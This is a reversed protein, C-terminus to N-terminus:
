RLLPRVRSLLAGYGALTDDVAKVVQPPIPGNGQQTLRYVALLQGRVGALTPQSGAAGRGRGRARGTGALAALERARDANGAGQARQEAEALKQSTAQVDAIADYVRMALAFQQRALLLGSKVRPDMRVSLAQTFTRGNATLRVTYTGPVVWPGKPEPATNFPTASIPYQPDVGPPMPYHLDWVFRHLGPEASLVATPRIWYWPVNGTDTIEPATDTSAYRRITKGAADLVELTVTGQISQPLYYDIIAGDPPNQGAPEDPPLPTDTWKSWEFRIAQAPKFVYTDAPSFGRGANGVEAVQRIPTVDDLIWFGRGHTGAILDDDKVTIDRISTAPMNLRLSQWHDGDDLSVYVETESGAYLLGKRKPDEKVSNIVAGDPIGTVIKTWSKGGDHTRYIEPHLQDLRLTNIAAYAGQPDTHSADMMSVKAWPTLQPPTVDKWTKGGDTTTQILGDDTGIWIRGVDLYGPAITYIVGKQSPRAAPTDTFIGVNAPVAWTKRTLDPSIETWGQLGGSTTKWLTNSAFYLVHPDVPSFVIPQTRVTRYEGSQGGALPRPAVDLVDGTRRDYRTVKGGYVIDPNLPDPAVYGYEEVGVPHWDHFTIRGDDSRSAVCASGSEQQGGCVRYPFANDTSVHYFQATPQNYWSSWTAGGDVTVTAGQDVGIIMIQPNGPNIWIRQYDDGGPAGRLAHFTKGGDTSKWTVISATYVIDPNKPDVKVEAFDDGRTVINTNETAKYWSQGADDSRYLGDNERAQVTAFMRQPNSPAVAIGIRGLGEDFTPLGKTLQHWTDGGDTSEFLGSNPGTFVGNEWPGQRAEWLVAYLHNANSPDFALDIGGTNEDKYLVKQFTRGGDTSRFIGREENPGYPHGLVAVFLRDPNHPDIIIQPIQQGDQLGLHTWTKGADTSKYIGDGVSLDPRQLGEGSGVYLVNPDSPAVAVAGISGTPQDDFIPKWTNGYDTSKWVGGNVAGIYFINPQGPVGTASKTRGGRYPGISRWRLEHFLSGRQGVDSQRHDISSPANAALALAAAAAAFLAPRLM